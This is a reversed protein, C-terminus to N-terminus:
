LHLRCDEDRKFGRVTLSQRTQKKSHFRLEDSLNKPCATGLIKWRVCVNFVTGVLRTVEESVSMRNKIFM